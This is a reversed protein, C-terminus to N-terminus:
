LNYSNFIGHEKSTTKIIVVFISKLQVCHREEFDIWYEKVDYYSYNHSNSLVAHARNDCLLIYVNGPNM